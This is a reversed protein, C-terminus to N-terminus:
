ARAPTRSLLAETITRLLEAQATVPFFHDGPLIRASFRGDTYQRWALMDSATVLPDDAGGFATIPCRLPPGQQYVYTEAMEFDARFIPMLLDLAEADELMEAPMGNLEKLADIFQEPPLDHLDRPARYPPAGRGSVFVHDAVYGCAQLRRALEFAIATGVSHGFLAFPRDLMPGVVNMLASVLLPLRRFSPENIRVGRGPLQVPVIGISEPLAHQWSRFFAASAGAHPFCL